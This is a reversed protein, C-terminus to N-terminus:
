RELTGANEPISAAIPHWNNGDGFDSVLETVGNSSVAHLSDITLTAASGVPSTPPEYIQVALLELPRSLESRIDGQVYHWSNGSQTGDSTALRITHTTGDADRLRAWVDIRGKGTRELKVAARLAVTDNPLQLSGTPTFRNIEDM